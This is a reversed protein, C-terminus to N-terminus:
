KQVLSPLYNNFSYFYMSVVTVGYSNIKDSLSSAPNDYSICDVTICRIKFLIIYCGFYRTTIKKNAFTSMSASLGCSPLHNCLRRNFNISIVPDAVSINGVRQWHQFFHNPYFLFIITSSFSLSVHVFPCLSGSGKSMQLFVARSLYVM